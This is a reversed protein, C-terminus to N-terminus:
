SPLKVFFYLFDYKKTTLRESAWYSWAWYSRKRRTHDFDFNLTDSLQQNRQMMMQLTCNAIRTKKEEQNHTHIKTKTKKKNEKQKSAHCSFVSFYFRLLVFMQWIIHIKNEWVSKLVLRSTNTHWFQKWGLRYAYMCKKGAWTIMEICNQNSSGCLRRSTTWFRGVTHSHIHAFYVNTFRGKKCYVCVYVICFFFVESNRCFLSALVDFKLCVM